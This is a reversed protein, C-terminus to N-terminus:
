VAFVRDPHICVNLFRRVTIKPKVILDFSFRNVSFSYSRKSEGFVFANAYRERRSIDLTGTVNQRSIIYLDGKSKLWSCTHIERHDRCIAIMFTPMSMVLSIQHYGARVIQQYGGEVVLLNIDQVYLTNVWFCFAYYM